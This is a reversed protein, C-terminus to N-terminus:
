RLWWRLAGPVAPAIIDIVFVAVAVLLAVDVAIDVVRRRRASRKAARVLDSHRRGQTLYPHIGRPFRSVM